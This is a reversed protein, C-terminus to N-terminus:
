LKYWFLWCSSRFSVASQSKSIYRLRQSRKPLMISDETAVFGRCTLTEPEFGVSQWLSTFSRWIHARWGTLFCHAAAVRGGSTTTLQNHLLPGTSVFMCDIDWAIAQSENLVNKNLILNGNSSAVTLRVPPWVDNGKTNWCWFVVGGRLLHKAKTCTECAQDMNWSKVTLYM